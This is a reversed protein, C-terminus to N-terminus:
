ELGAPDRKGYVLAGVTDLLDHGKVQHWPDDRAFLPGRHLAPQRLANRRKVKKQPVYVVFAPNQLVAHHRALQYRGFISHHENRQYDMRGLIIQEDSNQVSAYQVKGCPDTAVPLQKVLAVAPAAFQSPSIRNNQFPALLNIQRATTNCQPSAVATFDGALM